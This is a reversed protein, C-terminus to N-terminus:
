SWCKQNINLILTLIIWTALRQETIGYKNM